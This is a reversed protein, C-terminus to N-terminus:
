KDNEKPKINIKLKSSDFRFIKFFMLIGVAEMYNMQGIGFYPAIAINWALWIVIGFILSEYLFYGIVTLIGIFVEFLQRM